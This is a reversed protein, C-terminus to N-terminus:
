SASEDDQGTIAARYGSYLDPEESAVATIADVKDLKRETMVATVRNMFAQEGDVGETQEGTGAPKNGKHLPQKGSAAAPKLGKLLTVTGSYDETLRNKWAEKSEETFAGKFEEMTREVASSLLTSHRNKLATHEGQLTTFQTGIPELQAIRNKLAQVGSVIEDETATAALGLLVIVKNMSTVNATTTAERGHFDDVRNWFPALGQLNNKNTLGADNIELPRYVGPEVLETQNPFWVPSITRYRKNKVAASGIDSWDGKFWVGDERNEMASAWVAAETSKDKQHSFHEFDVLMLYSPDAAKKRNFAAVMAETAKDDVLQIIRRRTGDPKELVLPHRGKSVLHFWGDPSFEGARNLLPTLIETKM